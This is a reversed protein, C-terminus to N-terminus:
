RKGVMVFDSKNDVKIGFVTDVIDIHQGKQGLRFLETADHLTRLDDSEILIVQDYTGNFGTCVLHKINDSYKVLGRVHESTLKKRTAEDLAFYSDKIKCLLLTLYREKYPM